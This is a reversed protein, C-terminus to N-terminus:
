CRPVTLEVANEENEVLEDVTKPRGHRRIQVQVELLSLSLLLPTPTFTDDVRRGGRRRTDIRMFEADGM